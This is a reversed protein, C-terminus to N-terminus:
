LRNIKRAIDLLIKQLKKVEKEDSMIFEVSNVFGEKILFNPTIQVFLNGKEIRNILFRQKNLLKCMAGVKKSGISFLRYLGLLLGYIGVLFFIFLLIGRFFILHIAQNITLMILYSVCLLFAGLILTFVAKLPLHRWTAPIFKKKKYDYFGNTKTCGSQDIWKGPTPM